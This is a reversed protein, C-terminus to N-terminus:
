MIGVVTYQHQQHGHWHMHYFSANNQANREFKRQPVRKEVPQKKNAGFLAGKKALLANLTGFKSPVDCNPAQAHM